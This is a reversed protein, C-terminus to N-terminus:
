QCRCRGAACLGLEEPSSGAVCAPCASEIFQGSGTLESWFCGVVRGDFTCTGQTAASRPCAAGNPAGKWTCTQGLCSPCPYSVWRGGECALM